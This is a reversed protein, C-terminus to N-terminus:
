EGAGMNARIAILEYDKYPMYPKMTSGNPREDGLYSDDFAVGPSHLSVPSFANDIAEVTASHDLVRLVKRPAASCDNDHCAHKCVKTTPDYVIYM